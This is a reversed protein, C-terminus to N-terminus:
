RRAGAGRLFGALLEAVREPQEWHPSHGAGPLVHLTSDPVLRDLKEQDSRPFYTDHEGWLILTPAAIRGLRDTLDQKVFSAAVARWVRAPVALSAAVAEDMFADPVSAFVTSRQFDRVFGPDIPDVLRRVEEAFAVAGPHDLSAMAGILVLRDVREPHEIAVRQAIHGGLSHGVLTAREIGLADLFAVVDAAFDAMTYSALDKSSAGHGRQDPALVRLGAPLLPVLPAFSTCSDTYGHLLVLPAGAADGRAVYSLTAGTRLTVRGV